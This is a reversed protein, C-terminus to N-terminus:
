ALEIFRAMERRTDRQKDGALKKLTELRKIGNVVKSTARRVEKLAATIQKQVVWDIFLGDFFTDPIALLGVLETNLTLRNQVTGLEVHFKRTHKKLRKIEQRVAGVKAEKVVSVMENDVFGLDVTGWTEADSLDSSIKQLSNRVVSGAEIAKDLEAIDLDLQALVSYHKDLEDVVEHNAERLLAEKGKLLTEYEAEVGELWTLEQEFIAKKKELRVVQPKLQAVLGAADKYKQRQKVLGEEHGGLLAYFFSKMSRNELAELNQAEKELLNTLRALEGRKFQLNLKLAQLDQELKIKQQRREAVEVLQEAILKVLM